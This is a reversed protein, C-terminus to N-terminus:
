NLSKLYLAIARRDEVTLQSTNDEIVAAMDGGAFDGDPTMGLELFFEIDSLDWAALGSARNNIAPAGDGSADKPSGALEATLELGGGLGRRTHCEGCHGLHRVLYAGRETGSKPPDYSWPSYLEKWLGMALRGPVFWRLDHSRNAQRVPTLSDLYAKIALVDGDTLGAYSAYPFSPYYHSGDPAIGERVAAIFEVNSWGGIGTEPDPTINPTYFVGYPTELAHGGAFAAGNNEKDTHCSVCGGAATLYAGQAITDSAICPTATVWLLFLIRLAVSHHVRRRL